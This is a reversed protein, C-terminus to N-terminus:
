PQRISEEAATADNQSQIDNANQIINEDARLINFMETVKNQIEFVHKDEQRLREQELIYAKFHVTKIVTKCKEIIQEVDEIKNLILNVYM